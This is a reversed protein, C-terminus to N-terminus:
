YWVPAATPDFDLENSIQVPLNPTPSPTPSQKPVVAAPGSPSASPTTSPLAARTPPVSLYFLQFHGTAGTAAFYVLGAGDPAWTPAACLQGDLLVRRPGLASGNFSAVELRASQTGATCVMAVMTGAPSLAPQGCDEEPSTLPTGLSGQRQTLWLQGLPPGTDSLNFRTYLVAGSRLPVPQTDGGTYFYPHTWERARSQPGASPMAYIALDVRYDNNPDKPDWSYYITQGDPSFRPYFSWHNYPLYRSGNHTLQKIIQGNLDLLFLDSENASRSVAVLQTHDPSLAPQTWGGSAIKQFQGYRLKYLAGGQALVITGPLQFRQVIKTKTPEKATVTVVSRTKMSGLHSYVEVGFIVMAVLLLLAVAHRMM